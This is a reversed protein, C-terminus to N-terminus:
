SQTHARCLAELAEVTELGSSLIMLSYKSYIKYKCTCKCAHALVYVKGIFFRQLLIYYINANNHVCTTGTFGIIM